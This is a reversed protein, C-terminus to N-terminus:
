WAKREDFKRRYSAKMPLYILNYDANEAWKMWEDWENCQINLRPFYLAM